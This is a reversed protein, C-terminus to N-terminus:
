NQESEKNAHLKNLTWLQGRQPNERKQFILPKKAERLIARIRKFAKATEKRTMQEVPNFKNYYMDQGKKKHERIIGRSFVGACL